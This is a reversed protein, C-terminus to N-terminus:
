MHVEQKGVTSTCWPNCLPILVGRKLKKFPQFIGQEVAKSDDSESFCHVCSCVPPLLTAGKMMMIQLLDLGKGHILCGIDFNFCVGHLEWQSAVPHVAERYCWYAPEIGLRTCHTLPVQAAVAAAYTEVTARIQDRAQSGWISCPLLFSLFLLLLFLVFCFLVFCFSSFFRGKRKWFKM